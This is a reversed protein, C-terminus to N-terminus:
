LTASRWHPFLRALAVTENSVSVRVLQTPRPATRLWRRIRRLTCPILYGTDPYGRRLSSYSECVDCQGGIRFEWAGFDERPMLAYRTDYLCQCVRLQERVSSRGNVSQTCIFRRKAVSWTWLYAVSCRLLNSQETLHEDTIRSACVTVQAEPEQHTHHRCRVPPRGLVAVGPRAHRPM